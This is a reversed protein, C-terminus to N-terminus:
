VNPSIKKILDKNLEFEREYQYDGKIDVSLDRDKQQDLFHKAALKRNQQEIKEKSIVEEEFKKM